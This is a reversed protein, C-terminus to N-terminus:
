DRDSHLPGRRTYTVGARGTEAVDIRALGPLRHILRAWIWRALIECTPNELGDITNLNRHDLADHVVSWAEDIVAYDTVWGCHENIAGGIHLRVRYTHGHERACKHDEGVMPLRHACQLEYDTWVAASEM